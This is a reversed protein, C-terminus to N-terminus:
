AKEENKESVLEFVTIEPPCRFRVPITHLGCGRSTYLLARGTEFLGQAYRRGYVSPVVLPGILPLRWQGGHTHGSVVLDAGAQALRMAYDPRHSIVIHFIDDGEGTLSEWDTVPEHPHETGTIRLRPGDGHASPPAGREAFDVSRNSLHEIGFYDMWWSLLDPETFFDHNGLVACVGMPCDLRALLGVSERYLNDRSTFDGAYLVIDAKEAAATEILHDYYGPSLERGLHLDSLLLVRLGEFAEPLSAFALRQRVVELDYAHNISRVGPWLSVRSRLPFDPIPDLQRTRAPPPESTGPPTRDSAAYAPPERSWDEPAIHYPRPKIARERLAWVPKPRLLGHSTLAQGTLAALWFLGAASLLGWAFPSVPRLSLVQGFLETGSLLIPLLLVVFLFVFNLRRLANKHPGRDLYCIILNYFALFLWCGPVVLVIYGPLYRIFDEPM